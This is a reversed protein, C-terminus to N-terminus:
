KLKETKGALCPVSLLYYNGDNDYHENWM